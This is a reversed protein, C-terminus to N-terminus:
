VAAQRMVAEGKRRLEVAVEYPDGGQLRPQFLEISLPGAYGKRKLAQLIHKLPAVGDGPVERSQYDLLERPIGPVDQFHVHHIEGPRILDLDELRSLGACFHYFDFMPRVNPHAAARTVELATPLTGIFTSGSFFEVMAVVGFQRLAEGAERLNDAARRYDDITYKEKTNSPCVLRDAGLTAVMEATAKLDNLAKVRAPGPEAIGRGGGSAVVKMDLDTLLRKAAPLGERAAFERVLAPSLEVLHIGARAYGELSRRYGARLTTTQHMCLQMRRPAAALSAAGAFLATRRSIM